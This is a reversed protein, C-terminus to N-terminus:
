IEVTKMEMATKSILEALSPMEFKKSVRDFIYDYTNVGLKKATQVITLFTDHAKTGEETITQLSVDRRRVQARVGLEAQNNHLPIEPYKLVLLLEDKKEKTKAIRQDLKDYGTKTSFIRDFKLLLKAAQKKQPNKKCALLERYYDWYKKLFEEVKTAHEPVYPNLKKYHRGDHVWCLGLLLTILKFQPADDCILIDIIPYKTDQHYHAIALAELVRNRQIKGITPFLEKLIKKIEKAGYEKTIEKEKTYINSLEQQIKKSVKMIQLIDLAEKNLIYKRKRFGRFIDLVTLRDKRKTTFYATYLDNCMIHNHHNEGNVRVKTDDTQQHNSSKLGANYIAKKEQHFTNTNQKKTLMRSIWAPSISINFNKFFELIKPESMNCVYKMIITMAKVNPGFEGEYGEPLKGSYTKGESPSYYIEKQFEINDTQIKLDQIVVKEYGKFQADKPLSKKDVNCIEIRDIKIKDKKSERNRKNVGDVNETDKTNDKREQESSINKGKGNKNNPKINPKSQEGKLINNEDRLNQNEILLKENRSAVEEVLNFLMSFATRINEDAIKSLDINLNKLAKKIDM